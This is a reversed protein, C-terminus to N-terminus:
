ESCELMRMIVQLLCNLVSRGRQPRLNFFSFPQFLSLELCLAEAYNTGHCGLNCMFNPIRKARDREIKVQDPLFKVSQYVGAARGSGFAVHEEAFHTRLYESDALHQLLIQPECSHRLGLAGRNREGSKKFFFKIKNLRQKILFM